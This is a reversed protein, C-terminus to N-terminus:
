RERLAAAIRAFVMDAVAEDHQKIFFHGGAYEQRECGKTTCANWESTVEWAIVDDTRSACVTIPMPLAVPAGRCFSEALTLDARLIRGLLERLEEHELLEERMGGRRRLAELFAPAPLRHLQHPDPVHPPRAASAFFHLPTVGEEHLRLALEFGILGGMSHGFIATPPGEGLERVLASVAEAMAHCLPEAVREERGPLQVRCVQLWEPAREVWRRFLSAGAGAHPLCLLRARPRISGPETVLWRGTGSRQLEYTVAEAIRAAIDARVFDHHECALGEIVFRGTLAAGWGCDRPPVIAGEQNRAALLVVDGPYPRVEYGDIAARTAAIQANAQAGALDGEAIGEPGAVARLAASTWSDLLVLAGVPRGTQLLRQVIAFALIGGFSWGVLVRPARGADIRSLEAAYEEALAEVRLAEGVTVSRELVTVAAEGALAQALGEYRWAGDGPAAICVIHPAAPNASLGVARVGRAVEAPMAMAHALEGVTPHRFIWELPIVRGLRKRILNVLRVALVSDGGHLFFNDATKAQSLELVDQWLGLLASELDLVTAGHSDPALAHDAQSPESRDQPAATERRPARYETRAFPYTPIPVRRRGEGRHVAAWDVDVGAVYLQALAEAIADRDDKDGSLSAIFVQEGAGLAEAGLKTLVPHPGVELFVHHGAAVAARVSRAFEVPRRIQETWYSAELKDGAALVRGEVNLFMPVGAATHPLAAARALAPLIPDMLPSHSALSIQLLRTTIERRGFAAAHVEIASQLGSIVLRQEGNIAAIVAPGPGRALQEEVISQPAFVALMAGKGPASDMLEGRTAIFRLAHDLELVGAVCAAAVEGMSHGLVAAPTVGWSKWLESLAFAISFLCPQAHRAQEMLKGGDAGFIIRELDFRERLITACRRFAARFAPFSEYLVKAMGAYQAGQGSFLFVPSVGARSGSQSRFTAPSESKLAGRAEDLSSALVALRHPFHHRGVQATYALDALAPPKRRDIHERYSEGLAALRDESLASLTLIPRLRSPADKLARQPPEELIVHANTGGVGFSSVGVRRPALDTPWPQRQTPVYFPSRDLEMKPNPREFHLSPPIEGHYAILAGKILSAVGAASELLGINSKVSGLACFGRRETEQRFVRTLAQVEIPDGLPTATGQGELYGISEAPVGAVALAEAIVRAQGKVSPASFGIKDGGDNNVASGRLVAWIHDGEAIAEALRKLVVVGVGNGNVFGAAREDYSRCHGDPSLMMGAEYLYGAEQPLSIMSGGALAMGCEGSLLSQAALHVAVLSTSCATQVSLSPGTLDLKYSVRTALYDKDNATLVRLAQATAGEYHSSGVPSMHTSAACGAFVGTPVTVGRPAYGASELAEWACQLFSRQQPDLIRAEAASYGFLPADFAYADAVLGKAPVYDPDQVLEAPVGAAILEARSFRTISERGHLLNEWFSEITHAGPFRCAMGIIAVAHNDDPSEHQSM